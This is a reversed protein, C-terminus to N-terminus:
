TVDRVVPNAETTEASLVVSANFFHKARHLDKALSLQTHPLMKYRLSMQPVEFIGFLGAEYPNVVFM